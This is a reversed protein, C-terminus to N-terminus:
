YIDLQTFDFEDETDELILAVEGAIMVAMDTQAADNSPAGTALSASNDFSLGLEAGLLALKADNDSLASVQTLLANSVDLGLRDQAVDFGRVIDTAGGAETSATEGVVAIVLQHGGDDTFTVDLSHGDLAPLPRDFDLTLLPSESEANLRFTEADFAADNFHAQLVSATETITKRMAPSLVALASDYDAGHSEEPPAARDYLTIPIALNAVATAPTVM